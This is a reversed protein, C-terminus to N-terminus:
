AGLHADFGMPLQKTRARNNQFADMSNHSKVSLAVMSGVNKGFDAIIAQRLVRSKVVYLCFGFM